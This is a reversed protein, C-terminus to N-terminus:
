KGYLELRSIECKTGPIENRTFTKPLTITNTNNLSSVELGTVVKTDHIRLANMTRIMVKADAGKAELREMADESIFTGTSCSDLMAYTIIEKENSRLKVPVIPMSEISCKM